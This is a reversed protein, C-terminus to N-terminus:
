DFQGVNLERLVCGLDKRKKPGKGMNNQREPINKERSNYGTGAREKPTLKDVMEGFIREM